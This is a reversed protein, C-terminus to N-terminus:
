SNKMLNKVRVSAPPHSDYWASFIPDPTLTSYNDKYLKVLADILKQASSQSAAYDDAEFEHKRSLLSSIPSFVFTFVSSTLAFLVLAAYISANEMGLGTYFWDQQMLYGLAAFGALTLFAMSIVRKLIHKNKFHGLEHALVAEIEEDDLSNLLNDFFVIRKQKGLGTFYANGHSSRKSGDMVLIGSSTFGCRSMLNEIRQKLQQNDLESFKNFLPAIFTPYAWMMLMSFSFWVIWAYIWWLSGASQMLWLIVFLLPVSIILMLLFQKLMDSIFLKLNSRNFGFKEEVVFTNYLSFPLDLLSSILSFILIFIIGTIIPDFSYLLVQKDLWNLGGGLTWLLLLLNGFILEYQSFKIKAITYNASKQHNQLSIKEAFAEPVQQKHKNVYQTQRKNLWLQITLTLLLMFLFIQTFLAM